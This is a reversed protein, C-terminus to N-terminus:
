LLKHPIFSELQKQTIVKRRRKFYKLTIDRVIQDIKVKANESIATRASLESLKAELAIDYFALQVFNRFLWDFIRNKSPEFIPMGIKAGACSSKSSFPLFTLIKPEQQVLSIFKPYLIDIREFEEKQFQSFLFNCLKKIEEKEPFSSFAPFFKDIKVNEEKLYMKGKKGVVFVKQYQNKQQLYENILSHYLGGVLGRDGTIILIGKIGKNRKKFLIHSTPDLFNSLRELILRTHLVYLNLTKQKVKLIHIRSAAIKEVTKITELVDNFGSIEEKFKLYSKM